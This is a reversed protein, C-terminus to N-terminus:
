NKVEEDYYAKIANNVVNLDNPIRESEFMGMPTKVTSNADQTLFFYEIQEESNKAKCALLVITFFSEYSSLKQDVLKGLTQAKIKKEEILGDGEMVVHHLFYVTLDDRLAGAAQVIGVMNAAIDNWKDWTSEHIRRIYEMSSQHTNDDIVVVKINPMKQNIFNLWQIVAAGSTTRVMNGNPNSEKNYYTYAKASGKFPLDKGLSNIVFTEKPNLSRIASSKGAGAEGLVLAVRSM